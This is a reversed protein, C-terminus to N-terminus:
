LQVTTIESINIEIAFNIFAVLSTINMKTLTYNLYFHSDPKDSRIVRIENKIKEINLGYQFGVLENNYFGDFTVGWKVKKSFHKNDLNCLNTGNTLIVANARSNNIWDIFPDLQKASSNEGTGLFFTGNYQSFIVFVRQLVDDTIDKGNDHIERRWCKECRINCKSTIALYIRRCDVLNTMM